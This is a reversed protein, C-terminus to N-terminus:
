GWNGPNNFAGYNNSRRESGRGLPPLKSPDLQGLNVTNGPKFMGGRGGFANGAGAALVAEGPTTPAKEGQAAFAALMGDRGPDTRPAPTSMGNLQWKAVDKIPEATSRVRDKFGDSQLYNNVTAQPLGGSPATPVPAMAVPAQAVSASQAGDASPTFQMMRLTMDEGTKDNSAILSGKEDRGIGNLPQRGPAVPLAALQGELGKVSSNASASVTGASRKAIEDALLGRVAKIGSMSDTANLFAARRRAALTEPDMAVGAPTASAFGPKELVNAPVVASAKPALDENVPAMDSVAAGYAAPHMQANGMSAAVQLPDSLQRPAEAVPSGWLPNM